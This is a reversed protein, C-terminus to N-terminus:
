GSMGVSANSTTAIVTCVSESSERPLVATKRSDNPNLGRAPARSADCQARGRPTAAAVCGSSARMSRRVDSIEAAARSQPRAGLDPARRSGKCPCPGVRM